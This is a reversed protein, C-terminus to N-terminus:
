YPYFNGYKRYYEEPLSRSRFNSPLTWGPLIVLGSGPMKHSLINKNINPFESEPLIAKILEYYEKPNIALYRVIENCLDLSSVITLTPPRPTDRGADDRIQRRCRILMQILGSNAEDPTDIFDSLPQPIKMSRQVERKFGLFGLVPRKELEIFSHSKSLPGYAAVDIDLMDNSMVHGIATSSVSHLAQDKGKKLGKQGRIYDEPGGHDNLDGRGCAHCHVIFGSRLHVKGALNKTEAKIINQTTGVLYTLENITNVLM